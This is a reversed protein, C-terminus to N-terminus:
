GRRTAILEVIRQPYDSMIGDVGLDLLRAMEACDNITWVHVPLDHAHAHAVFEATVLPRGAVAPPVQLAMAEAPPARGTDLSRLFALVDGTSAGVAVRVGTKHLHDRLRAMLTDDAAALLTIDERGRDAVMEVVREVLGPTEAKIELNLRVGPLADFTEALTPIRLGQNRYPFSQGGDPSFRYGADLRQADALDLDSIAGRGDTTRSVEQDHLIVPEGDRTAHLDSEVIAVGQDLALEFSVLTNEPREGAAGRHGIPTPIPVDFYPHRM